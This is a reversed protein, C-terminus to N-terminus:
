RLFFASCNRFKYGNANPKKDSVIEGRQDSSNYYYYVRQYLYYVCFSSRLIYTTCRQKCIIRFYLLRDAMTYECVRISGVCKVYTSSKKLLVLRYSIPLRFFFYRITIATITVTEYGFSSRSARNDNTSNNNIKEGKRLM